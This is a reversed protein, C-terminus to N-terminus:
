PSLLFPHLYNGDPRLHNKMTTDAHAIAIDRLTHNGTLEESVFLVEQTM